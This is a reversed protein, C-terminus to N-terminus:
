AALLGREITHYKKRRWGTEVKKSSPINQYSFSWHGSQSVYSIRFITVPNKIDISDMNWYMHGSICWHRWLLLCIGGTWQSDTIPSKRQCERVRLHGEGDEGDMFTLGVPVLLNRCTQHSPLVRAWQLSHKSGIIEGTCDGGSRMSASSLPKKGTLRGGWTCLVQWRDM